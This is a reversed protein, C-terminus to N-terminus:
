FIIQLRTQLAGLDHPGEASRDRVWTYGYRLRVTMWRNIYYNAVAAVDSVRGGFVGAKSDSLCTYNYTALLELSKPKPTAIGALNRSYTYDGGLILGRLTVYAGYGQFHHMSHRNIRAYVYQTELAVPGHSVMLEPSVQWRNICDNLTAGIAKVQAVKTPFNASLTFADHEGTSSEREPTMFAGTLGVQLLHGGSNFPHWVMRSRLGYGTRSLKAKGTALTTADPEAHASATAFFHEGTHYYQVGLMQGQNFVTNTIPEIMTNKNCAAMCNQYSFHHVMSGLRIMNSANFRYQFYADRIVLKGYSLGAELKVGWKGYDVQVGLRMAPIAVGAPFEEHTPSAYVAGDFLLTGIPTFKLHDAADSQEAHAKSPMLSCLATLIIARLHLRLRSQLHM